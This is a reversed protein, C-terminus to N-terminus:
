RAKLAPVGALRRPQAIGVAVSMAKASPTSDSKAVPNRRGQFDKQRRKGNDVVEAGDEDDCDEICVTDVEQGKGSGGRNKGQQKEHVSGAHLRQRKIEAKADGQPHQHEGGPDVGRKSAHQQGQRYRNLKRGASRLSAVFFRRQVPEFVQKMSWHCEDDDWEKAQGVGANERRPVDM